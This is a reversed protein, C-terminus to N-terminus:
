PDSEDIPELLSGVFVEIAPLVDAMAAARQKKTLDPGYRDLFDNTLELVTKKTEADIRSAEATKLTADARERRARAKTELREADRAKIETALQQEQLERMREKHRRIKPSLLEILTTIADVAGSLTTTILPDSM